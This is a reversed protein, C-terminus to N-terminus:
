RELLRALEDAAQRGACFADEIRDGRTWEGTVGIRLEPEVPSGVLGAKGSRAYRWRHALVTRPVRGPAGALALFRGLLENAVADPADELRAASWEPTAHLVWTDPTTSRGPKSADRAAWALAADEVNAADFGLELPDDFAVMAAWCPLMRAGECAVALGPATGSLLEAAQPAPCALIVARFPGSTRGSGTRLTWDTGDRALEVVRAEREVEIEEAFLRGLASMGPNAVYRVGRGAPGGPNVPGAPLHSGDAAILVFRAEWRAVDGTAIRPALVAAFDPDRVTFYQAGHDFQLDEAGSRVRRTACRGGLGRSKEFVTVPVGHGALRRAAALGAVGAGVVAVPETM